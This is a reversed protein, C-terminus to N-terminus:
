LERVVTLESGDRAAEVFGLHHALELMERNADLIHGYLARYGAGRAADCLRELLAHGLGKGQWADAVALAFEATEGDANPAYRGVAVFEGEWLAVLALERDYDLQTFRALMRPSLERVYQMFRQFRSRDSLREFFRLERAADEPRIPRVRVTRGDRLRLEAELEIPYPHIAMHPYHAQAHAPEGRDIAVRADAVMAGGPHALVPNLDMEKVWPLMCVIRSVGVLIGALADLDAAPVNRYGALLRYVATRGMLERALTRNLPPLAVATDAVAEVAVGGTGFSVVPGFVPDTTVGVLVERAHPFRLMPQVVAGEIRAQPRLARVHRMMDEFASAVMDANQLSL